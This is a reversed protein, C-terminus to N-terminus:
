ASSNWANNALVTKLKLVNGNNFKQRSLRCILKISIVNYSLRLLRLRRQM